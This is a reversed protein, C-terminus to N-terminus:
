EGYFMVYVEVGRVERKSGAEIRYVGATRFFINNNVLWSGKIWRLTGVQLTELM